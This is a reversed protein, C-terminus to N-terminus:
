TKGACAPILGVTRGCPFRPLLKGRVRPSSGAMRQAPYRSCRNEGCVRPHAWSESRAYKRCETKGACAPILRCPSEGRQGRGPKGRVRPSSGLNSSNRMPCRSNEGCVRPHAAGRSRLRVQAKTKGACAPILRDRSPPIVRCSHKGRVRPSSGMDGFRFRGGLVNEGCVRPHAWSKLTRACAATTKGACAPILGGGGNSQSGAGRKGRM